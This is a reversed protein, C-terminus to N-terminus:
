NEYARSKMPTWRLLLCYAVMQTSVLHEGRKVTAKSSLALVLMMVCVGASCTDTAGFLKQVLNKKLPGLDRLSPHNEVDFYCSPTSNLITSGWNYTDLGKQHIQPHMLHSSLNVLKFTHILLIKASRIEHQCSMIHLTSELTFEVAALTLTCSQTVKRAKHVHSM